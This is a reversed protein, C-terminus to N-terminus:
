LPVRAGLVGTYFADIFKTSSGTLSPPTRKSLKTAHQVQIQIKLVSSVYLNHGSSTQQVRVLSSLPCALHILWPLSDVKSSSGTSGQEKYIPIMICFVIPFPRGKRGVMDRLEEVTLQADHPHQHVYVHGAQLARWRMETNLAFYRFWHHNAFRGDEYVMMHKLYNGITVSLPRPALFDAVGTPFLTPFDHSRLISSMSPLQVM